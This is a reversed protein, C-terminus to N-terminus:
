FNEQPTAHYWWIPHTLLQIRDFTNVFSVVPKERWRGSSDSLYKMQTTFREEYAHYELNWRKKAEISTEFGGFRVPEHAAFGRIQIGLIKEFAVKQADLVDWKSQKSVRDIGEELHLSVEHGLDMLMSATKIGDVSFLNYNKAHVRLFFSSSVGISQDIKAMALAPELSFDVDHRLILHKQKQIDLYDSFSSVHYDNSLFETLSFRYDDLTWGFGPDLIM